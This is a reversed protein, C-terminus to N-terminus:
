ITIYSQFYLINEMEEEYIMITTIGTVVFAKHHSVIMFNKHHKRDM